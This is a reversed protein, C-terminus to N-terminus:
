RWLSAVAEDYRRLSGSKMIAKYQKKDPLVTQYEWFAHLRALIQSDGQLASVAHAYIRAHMERVVALPERGSLLWPRALLGRGMMVGKLKPWRQMVSQVDELSLLDGNYVVRQTCAEVFAGFAERDPVGKYQQRGIRPHMTVHALPMANLVPLLRLCEGADEQGLRMKVSFIMEDRQGMEEAIEALREKQMLLGCGRGAKVQM